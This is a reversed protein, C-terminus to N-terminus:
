IDCQNTFARRLCSALLAASGSLLSSRNPADDAARGMEMGGSSEAVSQLSMDGRSLHRLEGGSSSGACHSAMVIDSDRPMADKEDSGFRWLRANGSSLSWNSADTSVMDLLEAEDAYEHLEQM